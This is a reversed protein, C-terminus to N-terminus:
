AKADVIIEDLVDNFARSTLSASGVRGVYADDIPKGVVRSSINASFSDVYRQSEREAITSTATVATITDGSITLVITLTNSGGDPVSYRAKKTYVGDTYTSAGSSSVGSQPPSQPATPTVDTQEIVSVAVDQQQQDGVQSTVIFYGSVGAVVAIALAGVIRPTSPNISSM